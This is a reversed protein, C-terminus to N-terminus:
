SEPIQPWRNHFDEHANQDHLQEKTRAAGMALLSYGSVIREVSVKKTAEDVGFKIRWSRIALLSRTKTWRSIRRYPHPAPDLRLVKEAEPILDIQHIDNLWEAQARALESWEVTYNPEASDPHQEAAGIGELWGAHVNTFADAYPLYPKIDLIPTGDLLDTGGLELTRGKIALLRAVSLGIGNPRHPSRTAFVGRKVRPGRPPLVKPKWNRNRHLWSVLWILDFGDLDALAQEFNHGSFLVLTSECSNVNLEPQRPARYRDSYLTHIVGIPTFSVPPLSDPDTAM